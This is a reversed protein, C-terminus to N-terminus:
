KKAHPKIELLIKMQEFTWFSVSIAPVVKLYNPALGRYFGKIGERRWIKKFADLMGNYMEDKNAGQFGQVQMKRRVLDLPYSVLPTTLREDAATRFLSYFMGTQALTGALAGNFLTNLSSVSGDPGKPTYQKLTEYAAFDIGVYPVVGVISPWLGRYLTMIGEQRTVKVVCDWIGKYQMDVSFM